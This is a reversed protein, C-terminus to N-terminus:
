MLVLEINVIDLVLFIFLIVIVVIIIIVSPFVCVFLICM